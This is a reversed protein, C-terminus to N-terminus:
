IDIYINILNDDYITLYIIIMIIKYNDIMKKEINTNIFDDLFKETIKGNFDIIEGNKWMKLTPYCTINYQEMSKRILPDDQNTCNVEICKLMYGNFLTGNMKKVFNFWGPTAIKCHPCWETYFIFIEIIYENKTIKLNKEYTDWNTINYNLSNRIM